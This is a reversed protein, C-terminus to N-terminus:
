LWSAVGGHRSCTGQRHESFSYTGDKCKASAGSPASPAAEPRHICHGSSNTYSDGGCVAAPPDSKTKVPAPARKTSPAVAPQPVPARAPQQVATHPQQQIPPTTPPAPTAQRTIVAPPAASLQPALLQPTSPTSTRAPAAVAATETPIPTSPAGSTLVAGVVVMLGCIAVNASTLGRSGDTLRRARIWGIVIPIGLLVMLGGGFARTGPILILVAFVLAALFPVSGIRRGDPKQAAPPRGQQSLNSGM